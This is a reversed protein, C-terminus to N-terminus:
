SSMSSAQPPRPTPPLPPPPRAARARRRRRRRRTRPPTRAGELPAQEGQEVLLHRPAVAEGACSPSSSARWTRAGSCKLYTARYEVLEFDDGAHLRRPHAGAAGGGREGRVRGGAGRMGRHAAQITIAAGRNEQFNALAGYRRWSSAICNAAQEETMRHGKFMSMLAAGWGAGADRM